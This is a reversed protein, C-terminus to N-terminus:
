RLVLWSVLGAVTMIVVPNIKTTLITILAVLAMCGTIWGSVATKTIIWTSALILGSTVPMLAKQLAIQWPTGHIKEWYRSVFILLLSSPIFMALISIVAGLIAPILLFHSGPPFGAAKMGVLEVILTTPGPAAKSLSFLDVFQRDTMWHYEGVAAQHMSPLVVNGGGFASLSLASFLELLTWYIKDM